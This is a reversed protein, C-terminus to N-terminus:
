DFWLFEKLALDRQEKPSLFCTAECYGDEHNKLCYHVPETAALALVLRSMGLTGSQFGRLFEDTVGKDVSKFPTHARNDVEPRDGQKTATDNHLLEFSEYCLIQKETENKVSMLAERLKKNERRLAHAETDITFEAACM